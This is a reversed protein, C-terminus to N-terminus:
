KGAPPAGTVTVVSTATFRGYVTVAFSIIGIIHAVLAAQGTADTAFGLLVFVKPAFMSLMSVVAGWFTTSAFISKYQTM